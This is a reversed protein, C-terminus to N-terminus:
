NEVYLDVYKRLVTGQADLELVFPMGSLDFRDLLEIAEDEHENMLEDIDVLLVKAKKRASLVRDAAERIGQCAPCGGSYFVLYGPKGKLAPLSYIGSRSRPRFLGPRRRLEGRVDLAPVVSGVPTRAALESLMEGLSVVRSQDEPTRWIDPLGTIYKGVFPIAADRYAATKQSSLYYLFDGFLQKFATENGEGSTRLALYDAVDMVDSASIDEGYASFLQRFEEMRSEEGYLYDERGLTQNLLIRLAPTDLGRGLITGDPSVLFMRPTQLVGYLRQWDSRIDPDWLHIVGRFSARASEWAAADSGTYIAYVQVPWANEQVFSKLRPTEAKCTSCGSDYFYLVSYGEGPVTLTLDGPTRLELTPAPMGILSSRNFDAFLRAHLLDTDSHMPIEGSLFWRDAVHVAVADDGMIRSQLYHDYIKLAVYQRVLSDECSAILFDCEENQVAATEGALATFYQELKAGLAPYPEQAQMPLLRLAALAAFLWKKM